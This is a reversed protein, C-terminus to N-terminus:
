DFQVALSSTFNSTPNMLPVTLDRYWSQFYWTEGVQAAVDGLPQALAQLDLALSYSRATGSFRIESIDNFRGIAGGLCLIGESMGPFPINGPAQSCIFYGFTNAPLMSATLTLDNAAVASSGTAACYGREELSNETQLCAVEGIPEVSSAFLDDMYISANVYVPRFEVSAMGPVRWGFWRSEGCALFMNEQTIGLSVGLRDFFEVEVVSSTGIVYSDSGFHGGFVLQDTAFTVQFPRFLSGCHFSGTRHTMGCAANTGGNLSILFPSALSNLTGQGGFIGGVVFPAGGPPHGGGVQQHQTEFGEFMEGVFPEVDTVQGLSPSALSLAAIGPLLATQLTPLASHLAKALSKM